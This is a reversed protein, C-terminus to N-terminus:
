ETASAAEETAAEAEDGTEEIRKLVGSAVSTSLMKQELAEALFTCIDGKSLRIFEDLGDVIRKLKGDMNVTMHVEGKYAFCVYGHQVTEGHESFIQHLHATVNEVAVTAKKQKRKKDSGAKRSRKKALYWKGFEKQDFVGMKKAAAEAGIGLRGAIDELLDTFRRPNVEGRLMNRRVTQIKQDREDWHAKIVCPILEMDLVRAAKWRHEGNVIKYRRTGTEVLWGTDPDRIIKSFLLEDEIPVTAIPEDFGEKEIEEVLLNFTEDPEEFPNWENPQIQGVPVLVPEIIQPPGVDESEDDMVVDSVGGVAEEESM